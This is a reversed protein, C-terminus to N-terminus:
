GAHDTGTSGEHNKRDLYNQLIIQAALKDIVQRRRRRSLDARILVEEALRSSLREDLYVVERDLEKRLRQGFRRAKRVQYGSSGDLRYPLGLVITAAEKERAASAVERIGEEFSKVRLTTLGQATLGLPDSIALGIRKEGLDVGLIRRNKM